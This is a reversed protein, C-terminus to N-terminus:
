TRSNDTGAWEKVRRVTSVGWEDERRNYQLPAQWGESRMPPYEGERHNCHQWGRVNKTSRVSRRVSRRM